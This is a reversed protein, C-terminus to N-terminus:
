LLKNLGKGKLRQEAYNVCEKILPFELLPEGGYFGITVEKQDKTHDRFFDIAKKAMNIHMRKNTHGRTEYNGSYVCYDCRLNCNQTVQLILQGLKSEAYFPLLETLPHLTQEVHNTKLYGRRKLDNLEKQVLEMYETTGSQLFEYTEGNVKVIDNTNVDYFYYGLPTSFLHIFPIENRKNM